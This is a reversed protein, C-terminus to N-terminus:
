QVVAVIQVLEVGDGPHCGEEIAYSTCEDRNGYHVDGSRAKAQLPFHLLFAVHVRYTACKSRVQVKDLVNLLNSSSSQV